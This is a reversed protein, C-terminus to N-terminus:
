TIEKPSEQHIFVALGALSLSLNFWVYRGIEGESEAFGSSALTLLFNCIPPLIYCPFVCVRFFLEMGRQFREFLTSLMLALASIVVIVRLYIVMISGYLQLTYLIARRGENTADMQMGMGHGIAALGYENYAVSPFERWPPDSFVERRWHISSLSGNQYILTSKADTSLAKLNEFLFQQPTIWYLLLGIFGITILLKKFPSNPIRASSLILIVSFLHFAIPPNDIGFSRLWHLQPFPAFWQETMCSSFFMGGMIGLLLPQWWKSNLHTYILMLILPISIYWNWVAAHGFDYQPFNLSGILLATIMCCVAIRNM